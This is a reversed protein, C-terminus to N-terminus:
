SCPSLQSRRPGGAGIFPLTSFSLVASIYGANGEQDPGRSSPKQQIDSHHRSMVAFAKDCDEEFAAGSEKPISFGNGKSETSSGTHRAAQALMMEKIEKIDKASETNHGNSRESSHKKDAVKKDGSCKRCTKQVETDSQKSSAYHYNFHNCPKGDVM